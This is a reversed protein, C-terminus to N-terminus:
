SSFVTMTFIPTNYYTSNSAQICRFSAYTTTFGDQVDPLLTSVIGSSQVFASVSYNSTSMANTFNFKYNGTGGYTVSSINYSNAITQSQGNYRCWAKASGSICNTASTSNTGDSLTSITLTGAM